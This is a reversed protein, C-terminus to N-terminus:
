TLWKISPFLPCPVPFLSFNEEKKKGEKKTDKVGLGSSVNSRVHNMLEQLPSHGNVGVELRWHLFYKYWLLSSLLIQANYVDPTLLKLNYIISIQRVRGISMQYFNFIRLWLGKYPCNM